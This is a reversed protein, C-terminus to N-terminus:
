SSIFIALQAYPSVEIAAKAAIRQRAGFQLPNSFPSPDVALWAPNRNRFEFRVDFL